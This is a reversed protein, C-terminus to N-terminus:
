QLVLRILSSLGMDVMGLFLSIIMVLVIVVFTSGMTQKRSPWTVKKLEARVERLFQVAKGIYSDKDLNVPAKKQSLASKKRSDDSAVSGSSSTLGESGSLQSSTNDGVTQKKKKSSSKKRQLRGM